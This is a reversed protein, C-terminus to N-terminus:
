KFTSKLVTYSKKFAGIFLSVRMNIEAQRSCSVEYPYVLDKDSLNTMLKDGETDM